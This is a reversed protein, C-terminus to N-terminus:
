DYADGSSGQAMRGLGYSLQVDRFLGCNLGYNRVSVGEETAYNLRCFKKWPGLPKWDEHLLIRGGGQLYIMCNFGCLWNMLILRIWIIGQAVREFFLHTTTMLGHVVRKFEGSTQKM